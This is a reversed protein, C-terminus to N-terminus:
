LEWRWKGHHRRYRLEREVCRGAGSSWGFVSLASVAIFWITTPMLDLEDGRLFLLALQIAFIFALCAVYSVFTRFVGERILQRFMPEPIESAWDAYTRHRSFWRRMRGSLLNDFTREIATV